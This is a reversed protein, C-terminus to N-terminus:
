RPQRRQSDPAQGRGRPTQGGSQKPASHTERPARKSRNRYVRNAPEGPLKRPQASEVAERQKPEQSKQKPATQTVSPKPPAKTPTTQERTAPEARRQELQKVDRYRPARPPPKREATGRSGFPARRSAEIRQGKRPPEVVRAPPRNQPAARRARESGKSELEPAAAPRPKRTAVVPRELVGRPPQKAVSHTAVLSARSPRVPLEGRVLELKDRKGRAHRAETVSRRGFQDRVVTVVADRIKANRYVHIEEINIVTKKKKIVVNNVFRPGGWGAWHAHRRFSAPGWWPILPEGWGLAVWGLYSGGFSFGFSFGGGSYFAVLAPAYYPRVVIPGPCWGWFGSVFVWRGYHYPAWGWSADDVWTWGYYPDHMWRGASYPAWGSAVGRPVWVAGYTPVVRWDGHYDLDNVGYVGSPVYRASLADIQADTRAYNWRDWGDIEPAAYTEVRPSDTGIVVVVESAAIALSAGAAPTLTARGGRRITFLTTEGEVEVRYYGTHEVTFAANPTAIEFTQGPELSRLDLSLTGSAARLQLYDPELTALGLQTDEGARVFSRPGVQIEVNSDDGVYLEDGAALPINVVATTWDEAGLRWFSVEGDVFSLRPPTREFGIREDDEAGAPATGGLWGAVLAVALWRGAKSGRSHNGM